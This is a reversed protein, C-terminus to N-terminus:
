GIKGSAGETRGSAATRVAGVLFDAASNVLEKERARPIGEDQVLSLALGYLTACTWRGIRAIEVPDRSGALIAAVLDPIDGFSGSAIATGTLSVENRSWESALQFGTRDRIWFRLYYRVTAALVEEPGKAGRRAAKLGRVFRGYGREIMARVIESKSRFHRYAAPASLGIREAIARMSLSDLGNKRAIEEAADLIRHRTDATEAEPM